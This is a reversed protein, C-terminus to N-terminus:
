KTHRFHRFCIQLGIGLILLAIGLPLLNNASKSGFELVGVMEGASNYFEIKTIDQDWPLEIFFDVFRPHFVGGSVITKNDSVEAYAIEPVEFFVSDFKYNKKYIFAKYTGNINRIEGHSIKWDLFSLKKNNFDYKCWIIIKDKVSQNNDKVSEVNFGMGIALIIIILISRFILFRQRDYVVNM